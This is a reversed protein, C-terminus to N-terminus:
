RFSDIFQFFDTTLILGSIIFHMCSVFFLLNIVLFSVLSHYRRHMLLYILISFRYFQLPTISGFTGSYINIFIISSWILFISFINLLFIGKKCLLSFGFIDSCFTLQSSGFFRILSVFWFSVFSSISPVRIKHLNTFSIASSQFHHCPIHM